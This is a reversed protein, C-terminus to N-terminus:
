SIQGTTLCPHGSCQFSERGACMALRKIEMKECGQPAHNALFAPSDINGDACGTSTDLIEQLSHDYKTVMTNNEAWTPISLQFTVDMSRRM